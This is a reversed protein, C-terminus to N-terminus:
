AKWASARLPEVLHDAISFEANWIGGPGVGFTVKSMALTPRQGLVALADDHRGGCSLLYAARQWTSTSRRELLTVIREVDCDGALQDLHAVLDAWVRFSAPRAALQVLLAEPGLAPLGGSWAVVDLRRRHLFRTTPALLLADDRSWGISITAVHPRLGHPVRSGDPIWIAVTGGFARDLYGLHWAAAEGALAFTTGPERAAWARLDLYPDDVESAGAPAFAWVGRLHTPVFWHLRVLERVTPDVGRDSGVELLYDALQARTVVTPRDRALSALLGAAWRPIRRESPVQRM